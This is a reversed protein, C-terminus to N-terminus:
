EDDDDWDDEDDDDIFNVIDEPTLDNWSPRKKIKRVLELDDGLYMEEIKDVEKRRM